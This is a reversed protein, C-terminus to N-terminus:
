LLDKAQKVDYPINKIGPNYGFTNAPMWQNAETVTGQMIREDIAPRNIALSLAKRVRVDM